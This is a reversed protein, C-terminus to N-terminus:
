WIIFLVLNGKRLLHFLRVVGLYSILTAAKVILSFDLLIEILTQKKNRLRCVANRKCKGLYVSLSKLVM